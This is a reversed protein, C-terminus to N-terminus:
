RVSGTRLAGDIETTLWEYTVAGITKASSGHRGARDRVDRARRVRRVRDRDAVRSRDVLPWDGGMEARTRSRRGRATDEFDVGVFVVGRERYREWAALLAPHEERCPLCWSAWFNM